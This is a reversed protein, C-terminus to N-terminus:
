VTHTGEVGRETREKTRSHLATMAGIVCVLAHANTKCAYPGSQFGELRDRVIALLAEKSIGNVGAEKIPGNQFRITVNNPNCGLIDYVHCANGQGPDDIVNITLAENLGNVKHTTIERM